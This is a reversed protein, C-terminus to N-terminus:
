RQLQMTPNTTHSKGCGREGGGERKRRQQEAAAADLLAQQEALHEEKQYGKTHRMQIYAARIKEARDPGWKELFEAEDKPTEPIRNKWRKKGM